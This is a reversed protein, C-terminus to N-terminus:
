RRTRYAGCAEIFSEWLQRHADNLEFLREPHWQVGVVWDHVHSEYAEVLWQDPEAVAASRFIPALSSHDLGQHHFTNVEFRDAGVIARLRSDSAVRVPHFRTAGDVPSRHGDFHQLMAGGAAINLVQCGRCIGFIPLNRALADQSLGIEMEDRKLDITSEDAGALRQNFYHPAVDGGGSLILGDLHDLVATALRGDSAPEFCAGDPFIAPRDPTLLVAYAHYSGVMAIYNRANQQLWQPAGHRSTVGIWLPRSGNHTIPQANSIESM